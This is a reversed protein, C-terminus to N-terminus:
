CPNQRRYTKTEEHDYVPIVTFVKVKVDRSSGCVTAVNGCLTQIIIIIIIISHASRYVVTSFCTIVLDLCITLFIAINYFLISFNM